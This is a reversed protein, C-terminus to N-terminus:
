FAGAHELSSVAGRSLRSCMVVPDLERLVDAMAEVSWVPPPASRSSPVLSTERLVTHRLCKATTAHRSCFTLCSRHAYTASSSLWSMRPTWGTSTVPRPAPTRGTFGTSACGPTRALRSSQAVLMSLTLCLLSRCTSSPLVSRICGRACPGSLGAVDDVTAGPALLGANVHDAGFVEVMHRATAENERTLMGDALWDRLFEVETLQVDASRLCDRMRGDTWGGAIEERYSEISLGIGSFGGNAAAFVRDAFDIQPVPPVRDDVVKGLTLSSITLPYPM